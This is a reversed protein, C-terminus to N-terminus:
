QIIKILTTKWNRIIIKKEPSTITFILILNQFDKLESFNTGHVIKDNIKLIAYSSLEFFLFCIFYFFINDKKSKEEFWTNNKDLM